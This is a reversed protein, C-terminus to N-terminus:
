SLIPWRSSMTQPHLAPSTSPSLTTGFSKRHYKPSGLNISAASPRSVVIAAQMFKMSELDEMTFEQDGRALIEGRKEAIEARLKEQFEPHKALEYLLWTVSNATTEHGALTFLSMQSIM